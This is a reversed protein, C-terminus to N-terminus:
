ITGFPKKEFFCTYQRGFIESIEVYGIDNHRGNNKIGLTDSKRRDLTMVSLTLEKVINNKEQASACQWCFLNCDFFSVETTIGSSFNFITRKIANIIFVITNIKHPNRFLKPASCM